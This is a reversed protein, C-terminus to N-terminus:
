TCACLHKISRLEVNTHCDALLIARGSAQQRRAVDPSAGNSM